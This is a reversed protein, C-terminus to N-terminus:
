SGPLCTFAAARLRWFSPVLDGELYLLFYNPLKLVSSWTQRKSCKWGMTIGGNFHSLLSRAITINWQQLGPRKGTTSWPEDWGKQDIEWGYIQAESVCSVLGCAKYIDDM